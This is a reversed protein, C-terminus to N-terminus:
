EVPEEDIKVVPVQPESAKRMDDMMRLRDMAQERTMGMRTMFMQVTAERRAEPSVPVVTVNRKTTKRITVTDTGEAKARRTADLKRIRTREADSAIKLREEQHRWGVIWELKHTVMLSELLAMREANYTNGAEALQEPTADPHSEKFLREAEAIGVGKATYAQHYTDLDVKFNALIGPTAQGRGPNYVLSVVPIPVEKEDSDSM